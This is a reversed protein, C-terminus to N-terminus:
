KKEGGLKNLILLFWAFEGSPFVVYPLVQKSYHWQLKNTKEVLLPIFLDFESIPCKHFFFFIQCKSKLSSSVLGEKGSSFFVELPFTICSCLSRWGNIKVRRKWLWDGSSLSVHSPNEHLHSCKEPARRTGFCAAPLRPAFLFMPPRPTPSMDVRCHLLWCIPCIFM